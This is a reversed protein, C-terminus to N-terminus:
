DWWYDYQDRITDFVIRRDAKKREYARAGAARIEANVREQHQPTQVRPRSVTLERLMPNGTPMSRYSCKGWKSEIDAMEASLYDNAILRDLAAIVPLIEKAFWPANEPAGDRLCRELQVLKLRMLRLLGFCDFSADHWITPGYYLAQSIGHCIAGM